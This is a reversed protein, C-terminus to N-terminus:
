QSESPTNSYDFYKEIMKKLDARTFPKSIYDTCGAMLAKDRDGSLAFATQAIIVVQKNFTRIQRTAEYGNIEPMQIDMLILDLDPHQRCTEVAETGTRVKLVQDSVISVTIGLYTASEFDDEAILIKLKRM